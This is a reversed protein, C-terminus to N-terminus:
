ESGATGSIQQNGAPHADKEDEPRDALRLQRVVQQGGIRGQRQGRRREDVPPERPGLPDGSPPKSHGKSNGNEEKKEPTKEAQEAWELEAPFYDDPEANVTVTEMEPLDSKQPDGVIKLAVITVNDVGGRNNALQVLLSCIKEVDGEGDRVTRRIDDDEVLGCLGDSCLIYIDNDVIKRVAVDIEVPAKVGLARTIVNRNVLKRAQEPSLSESKEIEAAWSHDITLPTLQGDYFRYIRSDGVHLLTITDEEIAAAVITTGMGSLAPDAAGRTYIRHNAIRVTKTLVDAAPSFMRPLRLREDKLIKDFYEGYLASTIRCANESAVEGANHGGMGDCVIYLQRDERYKYCDENLKRVLGIDTKGATIIDM